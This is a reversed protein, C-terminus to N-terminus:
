WHGTGRMARDTMHPLSLPKRSVAPFIMTAVTTTIVQVRDLATSVGQAARSVASAEVPLLTIRGSVASPDVRLRGITRVGAAAATLVNLVDNVSEADLHLTHESLRGGRHASVQGRGTPRTEDADGM